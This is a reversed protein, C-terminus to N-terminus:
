PKILTAGQKVLDYIRVVGGPVVKATKTLVPPKGLIKAMGEITNNCASFTVGSIGYNTIKEENANGKFLLRLGPGFAVVEVEVNDQGYNKILNSVVNLVLTQTEAAGDSIQLVFKPKAEAMISGCVFFSIAALAMRIKNVRM